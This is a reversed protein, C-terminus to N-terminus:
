SFIMNYQLFKFSLRINILFADSQFQYDILNFFMGPEKMNVIIADHDSYYVHHQKVDLLESKEHLTYVQDLVHGDLHTARKVVQFFNLEELYRTLVNKMSADFNMDGVLYTDDENNFGYDKLSSVLNAMPCGKSAYLCFITYEQNKMKIFQYLEQNCVEINVKTKYFVGIGKGRGRKVFESKYGDLVFDQSSNPDMWTELVFIIEQKLM